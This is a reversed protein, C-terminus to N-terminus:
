GDRVSRDDMPPQIAPDRSDCGPAGDACRASLEDITARAEAAAEAETATAGVISTHDCLDIFRWLWPGRTTKKLEFRLEECNTRNPITMTTLTEAQNRKSNKIV